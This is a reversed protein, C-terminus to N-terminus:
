LKLKDNTDLYVTLFNMLRPTIFNSKIFSEYDYGLLGVDLKNFM